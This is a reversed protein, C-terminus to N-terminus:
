PADALERLSSAAGALRLSRVPEGRAAAAAALGELAVGALWTDRLNWAADLLRQHTARGATHDGQALCVDGLALLSLGIGLADSIEHKLTLSQEHLRRADAFAHRRAALFALHGIVHARNGLARGREQNTAALESAREHAALSQRWLHEEAAYDRHPTASPPPASM